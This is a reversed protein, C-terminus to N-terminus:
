SYAYKYYKLRRPIDKSRSEKNALFFSIILISVGSIEGLTLVVLFLAFAQRYCFMLLLPLFNLCLPRRYWNLSSICGDYSSVEYQPDLLSLINCAKFLMLLRLKVGLINLKSWRNNRYCSTLFWILSSKMTQKILMFDFVVSLILFCVPALGVVKGSSYSSTDPFQAWVLKNVMFVHLFKKM